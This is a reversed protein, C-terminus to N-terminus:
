QGYTAADIKSYIEDWYLTSLAEATDVGEVLDIWKDVLVQLEAILEDSELINYGEKYNSAVSQLDNEIFKQSAQILSDSAPEVPIGNERSIEIAELGEQYYVWGINGFLTANAKLLIERQDVDLGQWVDQNIMTPFPFHAGPMGTYVYDIVEYFRFNKIDTPNSATCDLVGQDLAEYTEAISISTSNAGMADTWRAWYAGATRIRKGELDEPKNIPVGCLLMYSMTMGSGMYVQNQGSAETQCSPCDLMVLETMAGALALSSLESSFEETEMMSSTESLMNLTPYESAFYPTLITALDALGDRLGDNAEGFSLLSQAFVKMKLDGGSLEEVENAYTELAETPGTNPPWGGAYNLTTAQLALPSLAFIVGTLM